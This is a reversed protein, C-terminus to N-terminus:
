KRDSQNFSYWYVRSFSIPKMCRIRIARFTRDRPMNELHTSPNTMTFGVLKTSLYGLVLQYESGDQDVLSVEPMATSGDKFRIAWKTADNGTILDKEEVPASFDFMVANQERLARLLESPTIEKWESSVTVPGSIDREVFPSFASRYVSCSAFLSLCLCLLFRGCTAAVVVFRPPLTGMECLSTNTDMYIPSM